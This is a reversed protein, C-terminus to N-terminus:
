GYGAPRNLLYVRITVDSDEESYLDTISSLAEYVSCFIGLSAMFLERRARDERTTLPSGCFNLANATRKVPLLMTRLPTRDRQLYLCLLLHVNLLIQLLLDLSALFLQQGQWLYRRPRGSTGTVSDDRPAPPSTPSVNHSCYLCSFNTCIFFGPHYLNSCLFFYCGRRKTLQIPYRDGKGYLVKSFVSQDVLLKVRFQGQVTSVFKHEIPIGYM